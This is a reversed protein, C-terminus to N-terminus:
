WEEKKISSTVGAKLNNVFSNFYDEIEKKQQEKKLENKRNWLTSFAFPIRGMSVDDPLMEISHITVKFKGEKFEVETTFNADYYLKMGMPTLAMVKDAHTNFKIFEGEVKGKIVEDPNKYNKNIYNITNQYLDKAAKGEAEFVVYEKTEDLSSKLGNPTVVYQASSIFSLLLTTAVIIKKM